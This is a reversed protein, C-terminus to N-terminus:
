WHLIQSQQVPDSPTIGPVTSTILSYAIFGIELLILLALVAIVIKVTTSTGGRRRSSAMGMQNYLPQPQSM